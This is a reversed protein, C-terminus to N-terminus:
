RPKKKSGLAVYHNNSWDIFRFDSLGFEKFLRQVQVKTLRINQPPGPSALEAKWEVVSVKGGNKLLRFAEAILHAPQKVEHLIFALLCFDAIEDDLGTQEADRNVLILNPPPNKARIHALMEASDDVAYVVGENGVCLSMPISFTGTGCGLDVCTMGNVIGAVDKLLQYPRLEKIREENDLVLARKINFHGETM